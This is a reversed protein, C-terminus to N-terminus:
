VQKEYTEKPFNIYAYEGFYKLAARDYAKAAEVKDSYAGIYIVKGFVTLIAVWKTRRNKRVVVGKYGSTNKQKSRNQQNQYKDVFRLNCKRNDLTDHNIHDVYVGKPANMVDRSLHHTKGKERRSAREKGKEGEPRWKYKIFKDYDEDDVKTFFGRTLPILKM